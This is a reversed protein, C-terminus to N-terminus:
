RYSDVIRLLLARTGSPPWPATNASPYPSASLEYLVGSDAYRADIDRPFTAVCVSHRAPSMVPAEVKNTSCASATQVFINLKITISPSTDHFELHLLPQETAVAAARGSDFILGPATPTKLRLHPGAVEALGFCAATTSCAGTQIAVPRSHPSGSGCVSALCVTALLATRALRHSMCIRGNDPHVRYTDADPSRM